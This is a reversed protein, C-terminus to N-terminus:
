EKYREITVAALNAAASLRQKQAGKVKGTHRWHGHILQRVIGCRSCLEVNEAATTIWGHSTVECMTAAASKSRKQPTGYLTEGKITYDHYNSLIAGGLSIHTYLFM